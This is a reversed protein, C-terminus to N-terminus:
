RGAPHPEYPGLLLASVLWGILTGMALGVGIGVGLRLTTAVSTDGIGAERGTSCRRDGM